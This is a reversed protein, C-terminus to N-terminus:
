RSLVTMGPHNHLPIFTGPGMLFIGIVFDDNDAISQYQLKQEVRYMNVVGPLYLLSPPGCAGCCECAVTLIYSVRPFGRTVHGAVTGFVPQPTWHPSAKM